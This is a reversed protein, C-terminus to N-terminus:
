PTTPAAPVKAAAAAPVPTSAPVPTTVPLNKKLEALAADIPKDGDLVDGARYGETGEEDGRLHGPLTAESYDFTPGPEFQGQLVLEFPNRQWTFGVLLLEVVLVM